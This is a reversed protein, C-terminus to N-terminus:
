PTTDNKVPSIPGEPIPATTAAATDEAPADPVTARTPPPVAARPAMMPDTKMAQAPALPAPDMAATEQSTKAGDPVLKVEQLGAEKGADILEKINAYPV